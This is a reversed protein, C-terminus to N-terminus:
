NKTNQKDFLVVNGAADYAKAIIEYTKLEANKITYNGNEDATVAAGDVTVELEIVGVNDEATVTFVIDDRELYTDKDFKISVTPAETDAAVVENVPITATMGGVNGAADYAKAIIEYTKLEAIKITYNGNEDATVATGDVTVELEIVGVNDEATVTFVIDDGEFYIEKDPTITVVPAEDDVIVINITYAATGMNGAEDYANATFVYEGEAANEIKICNNEDIEKETDNVFAEIKTVGINDTATIEATITDGVSYAEKDFVLEVAPAETDMGLVDEVVIAASATITENETTANATLIYTGENSTDLYYKGDTLVVTEDNLTYEISNIKDEFTTIVTYYAEEGVTVRDASPIIEVTPIEDDINGAYYLTEPDPDFEVGLLRHSASGAGTASTIGFYVREEGYFVENLDINYAIMPNQPKHVNGNEDYEAASVYLMKNKGDYEIWADHIAGNNRLEPYTYSAYHNYSSGNLMLGIHNANENVNSYNDFEVIVSPSIGTYGIGGGVGGSINNSTQMVFALGDALMRTYEISFTFRASFTMDNELYKCTNYYSYGNMYNRDPVLEIMKSGFTTDSGLSWEEEVFEKKYGYIPDGQSLKSTETPIEYGGNVMDFNAGTINFISGNFNITDACVFGTVTTDYTNFTVNGNPAYMAGNINIQSGNITINGNKSYLFVRGTTNFDQVNYTINGEAIIYCDGEFTTGSIIVEGGVKISSNVINRDQVYAPSEEFYEYPQANDEIAADYDPMQIPAVGNNTETIETKWGNSSVEGAADVKGNIYLESGNYVFNNGTYVDGSFNSKWGSLTFPQAASGSFLAYNIEDPKLVPEDWECIFCNRIEIGWTDGYESDTYNNWKGATRVSDDGYIHIYHEYDYNPEGDDWNTYQFPEETIWKWEGEANDRYGGIWYMVCSGNSYTLETIFDNEAKDKITALHGGLNECYEKAQSWKMTTNIAAYTHGNYEHKIIDESDASIAYNEPQVSAVADTNEELEARIIDERVRDAYVPLWIEPAMTMAMAASLIGSIIRKFRKKAKLSTM